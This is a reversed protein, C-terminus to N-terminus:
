RKQNEEDKLARNTVANVGKQTANPAQGVTSNLMKTRVQKNRASQANSQANNVNKAKKPSNPSRQAQREATKLKQNANAVEKNANQVAKKSGANAVKGAGVDVVTNLVTKTAVEEVDTNLNVGENATIDILSKTGEVLLTKAAKFKGTPNIAALGVDVFDVNGIWADYGSKGSRYNDFVQLGYDLGAGVIAWVPFRGDPDVANIPNNFCYAYPSSFTFEEALPDV